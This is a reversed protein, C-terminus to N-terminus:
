GALGHPRLDAGNELCDQASESAKEATGSEASPAPSQGCRRLRLVGRALIAAVEYRRRSPSLAAPDDLVDSM